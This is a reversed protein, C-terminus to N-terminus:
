HNDKCNSVCVYKKIFDSILDEIYKQENRSFIHRLGPLIHVYVNEINKQIHNIHEITAFEDYEGQIVLVVCKISRLLESISWRRFKESLWISSWKSFLKDSDQHYRALKQKLTGTTYERILDKIGEITKEEVFIHPAIAIVGSVLLPYNAAYILSITAGDSHGILILKKSINYSTLLYPLVENAEKELFDDNWFTDDSESCGYNVRDYVLGPMNLRKCINSPFVGWQAVSGLGNHLFM